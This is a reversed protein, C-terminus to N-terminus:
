EYYYYRELNRDVQYAGIYGTGKTYIIYGASDFQSEFTITETNGYFDNYSYSKLYYNGNEVTTVRSEGFELFLNNRENVTKQMNIPMSTNYYDLSVEGSGTGLNNKIIKDGDYESGNEILGMGNLTTTWTYQPMVLGTDTDYHEVTVNGAGYVFRTLSASTSYPMTIKEEILRGQNDFTHIFERFPMDGYNIINSYVSFQHVNGTYTHIVKGNLVGSANFTSDAVIKSNEFYQVNKYSDAQNNDYATKSPMYTVTKRLQLETDNDLPSTEDDSCATLMAIFAFALPLFKLKM